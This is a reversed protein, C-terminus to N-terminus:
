TSGGEAMGVRAETWRHALERAWVAAGGSALREAEKAHAMSERQRGQVAFAHALVANAVLMESARELQTAHDLAETARVVARDIRGRECDFIAARSLVYALRHKADAIRLDRLAADLGEPEDDIAYNCLGLMARAFPAESGERLKEGLMLLENCGERADELRGRQLELMVLYENAQYESVRDGEAKCLARSERFLEQAEDLRNDRFRLMGLGLALAHHVLGKRRALASAEMLM